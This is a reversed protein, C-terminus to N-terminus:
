QRYFTTSCEHLLDIWDRPDMYAIKTSNAYIITAYEDVSGGESVVDAHLSPINHHKNPTPPKTHDRDVKLLLQNVLNYLDEFQAVFPPARIAGSDDWTPYM